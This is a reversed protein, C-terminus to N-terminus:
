KIFFLNIKFVKGWLVYLNTKLSTIDKIRKLFQKGVNLDPHSESKTELKFFIVETVITETANKKGFRSFGKGTTIITM